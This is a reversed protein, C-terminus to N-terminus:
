VAVAFDVSVVASPTTPISPSLSAAYPTIIVSTNSVNWMIEVYDAAATEVFLYGMVALHSPISGSKRTPISFKRTSLAINGTSNRLWVSVTETNNILSDFQISYAIRYVGAQAFTIRTSSVLSVDNLFASADFQLAYAATTSAATQTASSTFQGTPVVIGTGDGYFNDARYSKAQNPTLSDLQSFYIELTRLFQRFYQPEYTEPPNPLPSAKFLELAM